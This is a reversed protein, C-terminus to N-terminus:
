VERLYHSGKNIRHLKRRRNNSKIEICRGYPRAHFVTTMDPYAVSVSILSKHLCKQRCRNKALSETEKSNVQNFIKMLHQWPPCRLPFKQLKPRWIASFNVESVTESQLLMAQVYNTQLSLLKEQFKLTEHPTRHSQTKYSM